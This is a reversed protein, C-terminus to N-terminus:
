RLLRLGWMLRGELIAAPDGSDLARLWEEWDGRFVRNSLGGPVDIVLDEDDRPPFGAEADWQRMIEFALRSM